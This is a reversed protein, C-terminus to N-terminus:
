FLRFGFNVFIARNSRRDVSHDERISTADLSSDDIVTLSEETMRYYALEIFRRRAEDMYQLAIRYGHNRVRIRNVETIDTDNTEFNNYDLTYLGMAPGLSLWLNHNPFKAIKRMYTLAYFSVLLSTDGKIDAGDNSIKMDRRNPTYSADIVINMSNEEDFNYQLKSGINLGLYDEPIEPKNEQIEVMPIGIAFYLKPYEVTAADSKFPFLYLFFAFVFTYKM